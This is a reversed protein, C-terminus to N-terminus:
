ISIEDGSRGEHDVVPDSMGRTIDEGLVESDVRGYEVFDGLLERVDKVPGDAM